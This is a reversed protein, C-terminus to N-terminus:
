LFTAHGGKRGAKERHLTRSRVGSGDGSRLLEPTADCSKPNLIPDHISSTPHTHLIHILITHSVSYPQPYPHTLQAQRCHCYRSMLTSRAPRVTGGRGKKTPRCVVEYRRQPKTGKRGEHSM